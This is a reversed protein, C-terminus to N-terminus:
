LQGRRKTVWLQSEGIGASLKEVSHRWDRHQKAETLAASQRKM